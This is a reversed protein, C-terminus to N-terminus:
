ILIMYYIYVTIVDFVEFRRPKSNDLIVMTIINYVAIRSYFISIQRAICKKLFNNKLNSKKHSLHFIFVLINLLLIYIHKNV